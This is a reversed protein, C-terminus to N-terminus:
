IVNNERKKSTLEVLMYTYVCVGSYVYLSIYLYSHKWHGDKYSFSLHQLKLHVLSNASSWPAPLNKVEM